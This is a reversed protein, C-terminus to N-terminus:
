GSVALSLPTCDYYEIHQQKEHIYSISKLPLHFTLQQALNAEKIIRHRLLHDLILHQDALVALLLVNGMSKVHGPPKDNSLQLENAPSVWENLWLLACDISGMYIAVQSATLQMSTYSPLSPLSGFIRDAANNVPLTFEALPTDSTENILAKFVSVQNFYAALFQASQHNKKNLQMKQYFRDQILM